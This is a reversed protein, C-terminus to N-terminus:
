LESIDRVLLVAGTVRHHEILPLCRIAVIVDPAEIEESVPLQTSFARDIGPVNIGLEDLRVGGTNSLIGMRHLATVANPSAYAVRREEDLLMAGDGVRPGDQPPFAGDGAFPYDGSVLMRAFRDFTDLYVRELEGRRRLETASSVRALVAIPRARHVVPICELRAREGTSTNDDEGQVIAQQRLAEAVLPREAEDVIHGVLDERYLTQNTTPRVQGLVVFKTMGTHAVEGYLLLDAFCFDSLMGWGAILRHLQAIDDEDLDTHTRALEAMTAM